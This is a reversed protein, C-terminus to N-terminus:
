KYYYGKPHDIKVDPNTSRVTVKHYGKDMNTSLYTLAFQRSLALLMEGFFPRYSVPAITGQVFARGGTEDSLKQLAGQAALLFINNGNEAGATPWFFSYLAVSKRQAKLVAQELDFSQAISALSAGQSTDLGDSFLLVARRGAPM